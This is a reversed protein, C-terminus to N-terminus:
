AEVPVPAPEQPQADEPECTVVGLLCIDRMIGISSEQLHAWFAGKQQEPIAQACAQLVSGCTEYLAFANPIAGMAAGAMLAGVGCSNIAPDFLFGRAMIGGKLMSNVALHAENISRAGDIKGLTALRTALNQRGAAQLAFPLVERVVWDFVAYGRRVEMRQGGAKTGVMLPLLPGLVRARQAADWMGDNWARAAYAIMGSVCKPQDSHAEGVMWAVVEMACHGDDFSAHAGGDLKVDGSALKAFREPIIKKVARQINALSIKM